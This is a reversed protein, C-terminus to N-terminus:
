LDASRISYSIKEAVEPNAKPSMQIVFSLALMANKTSPIYVVTWKNLKPYRGREGTDLFKAIFANKGDIVTPTRSYDETKDDALGPNSYIGKDLNVVIETSKFAAACSDFGRLNLNVMETPVLFSVNCASVRKWGKPIKEAQALVLTGFIGIWVLILTRRIM